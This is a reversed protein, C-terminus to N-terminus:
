ACMNKPNTTNMKIDHTDWATQKRASSERPALCRNHNKRIWACNLMSRLHRTNCRYVNTVLVKANWLKKANRWVIKNWWYVQRLSKFVRHCIRTQFRYQIICTKREHPRSWKSTKHESPRTPMEATFENCLWYTHTHSHIRAKKTWDQLWQIKKFHVLDNM